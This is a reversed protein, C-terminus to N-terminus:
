FDYRVPVSSPGIRVPGRPERNSPFEFVFVPKSYLEEEANTDSAALQEKSAPGAPTQVVTPQPVLQQDGQRQAAIWWVVGAVSAAVALPRLLPALRGSWWDELLIGWAPQPKTGALKERLAAENRTEFFSDPQEFRKLALLRAVRDQADDTPTRRVENM